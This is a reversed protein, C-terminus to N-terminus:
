EINVITYKAKGAPAEVIVEENRKRGLFAKGLPSENSIIFNAPDAEDSGVIRFKILKGKFNVEVVSGIVAIESPTKEGIIVAIKLMEELESIRGENFAQLEKAEAYEANESLDGHSKAEQIRESIELRKEKLLDLEEQLKKLGAKTIYRM